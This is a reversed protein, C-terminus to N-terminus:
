KSFEKKFLSPGLYFLILCIVMILLPKLWMPPYPVIEDYSLRDLIAIILVHYYYIYNSSKKGIKYLHEGAYVRCESLLFVGIVAILSGIYIEKKDFIFTEIVSMIIGLVIMFIFKKKHSSMMDTYSDGYKLRKERFIDALLIGLLVFPLGFFLWNRLIFWTTISIGFPRIPYFVELAEGFYLMFLLFAILVKYWKRLVGAFIYILGVSYLLAFLFWMHDFVFASDYIFSSTNFLVFYIFEKLSYKTMLWEKISDGLYLHILLSFIFYVAYVIVTVKLLRIFYRGSKERIKEVTDDGDRLLYRGSLVFFFPVATRTVAELAFGFTGPFRTHIIIVFM